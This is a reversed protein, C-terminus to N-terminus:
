VDGDGQTATKWIRSAGSTMSKWRESYGSLNRGEIDLAADVKGKSDCVYVHAKATRLRTLRLAQMPSLPKGKSKLEVFFAYGFGPLVIRDPWGKSGPPDFKLCIWDRKRCEDVLYQEISKESEESHRTIAM